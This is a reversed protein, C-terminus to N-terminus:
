PKLTATRTDADVAEITLTRETVCTTVTTDAHARGLAVKTGAVMVVGNNSARRRARVPEVKPHPTGAPRAGHLRIAQDCTFPSPRTRFEVAGSPPDSGRNNEVRAILLRSGADWV